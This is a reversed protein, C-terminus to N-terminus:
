YTGTATFQLTTTYIGAKTTNAINGIFSLKLKSVAGASKTLVPSGSASTIGTGASDLNLGYKTATAVSVSGTNANDPASACATSTDTNAVGDGYPAAVTVGEDTTACFGFQESFTSGTNTNVYGTTAAAGTGSVTPTFAIKNSGTSLTDGKLTVAAGSSANTQIYLRAKSNVYAGSTDLVGNTDGLKLSTVRNEPGPGTTDKVTGATTCDAPDSGVAVIDIICFRLREQVKATIQLENSTSLAIGGSDQYVSPDALTYCGANNDVASCGDGDDDNDIYTYIRAYFSHNGLNPNTIGTIDFTVSQSATPTAHAGSAYALAFTRNTNMQSPTYTGGVLVNNVKFSSAGLTGPVSFGAPAVCTTDGIIPSGDCFDVILSDLNGSWTSSVNFSVSYTASASAKSTSMTIKRSDITAAKAQMNYVVPAIVSAVMAFSLVLASARFGRKKTQIM